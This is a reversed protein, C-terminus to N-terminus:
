GSKGGKAQRLKALTDTLAKGKREVVKVQEINTEIEQDLLADLHVGADVGEAAGTKRAGVAWAVQRGIDEALTNKLNGLAEQVEASLQAAQVAQAREDRLRSNEERLRRQEMVALAMDQDRAAIDSGAGDVLRGLIELRQSPAQLLSAAQTNSSTPVPPRKDLDQRPIMGEARQIMQRVVRGYADSTSAQAGDKADQLLRQFEKQSQEAIRRKEAEIVAANSKLKGRLGVVEARLREAEKSALSEEGLKAQVRVLHEQLERSTKEAAYRRERAATDERAITQQVAQTILEMIRREDIVRVKKHGMKALDGLQVSRSGGKIIKGIDIDKAM